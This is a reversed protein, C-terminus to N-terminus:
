FPILVSDSHNIRSVWLTYRETINVYIASHPPSREPCFPSAQDREKKPRLSLLSFIGLPGMAEISLNILGGKLAMWARELIPTRTVNHLTKASIQMQKHPQSNRPPASPSLCLSIFVFLPSFIRKIAKCDEISNKKSMRTLPARSYFHKSVLDSRFIIGITDRLSERYLWYLIKHKVSTQIHSKGFCNIM